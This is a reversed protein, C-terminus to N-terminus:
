MQTAKLSLLAESRLRSDPYILAPNLVQKWPFSKSLKYVVPMLNKGKFKAM